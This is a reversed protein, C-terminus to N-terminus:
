LGTIKIVNLHRLVSLDDVQIAFSSASRDTLGSM